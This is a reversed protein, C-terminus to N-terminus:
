ENNMATEIKDLQVALNDAANLRSDSVMGGKLNDLAGVAIVNQLFFDSVRVGKFNDRPDVTMRKSKKVIRNNEVADEVANVEVPAFLSKPYHVQSCAIRERHSLYDM